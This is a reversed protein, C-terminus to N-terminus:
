STRRYVQKYKIAQSLRPSTETVQMTLTRGDTSLTYDNVRGGDASKFTQVLHSGALRMSLNVKGGDPDTWTIPTGKAPARVPAQDEVTVSVDNQSTAITVRHYAPNLKKLHERAFHRELFNFQAVAKDIVVNINDSNAEDLTYTGDLGSTEAAVRTTSDLVIASCLLVLCFIAALNNMSKKM